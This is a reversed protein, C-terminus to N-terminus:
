EPHGAEKAWPSSRPRHARRSALHIMRRVGRFQIKRTLNERAFERGRLARREAECPDSLAQSVAELLPRPGPGKFLFGRGDGIQWGVDGADRAIVPTGIMMAESICIPMAEGYSPLVLFDAAAILEHADRRYGWYQSGAPPSQAFRTISANTNAEDLGGAVVLRTRPFHGQIRPWCAALDHFGKREGLTGLFLLVTEQAAFGYQRRLEARRERHRALSPSVGNPSVRWSAGRPRPGFMEMGTEAAFLAAGAYRRVAYRKLFHTVGMHWAEHVHVVLPLGARHAALMPAVQVSSNAYVLEIRERRFIERYQGVLTLRNALLPLLSGPRVRSLATCRVDLVRMSIRRSWLGEELPSPGPLLAVALHSPYGGHVLFDRLWVSAGSPEPDHFCFAVRPYDM